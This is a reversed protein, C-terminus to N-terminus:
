PPGAQKKEEIAPEPKPQQKNVKKQPEIREKCYAQYMMKKVDEYDRFTFKKARLYAKSKKDMALKEYHVMDDSSHKRLAKSDSNFAASAESGLSRGKNPDSGIRAKTLKFSWDFVNDYLDLNREAAADKVLQKLYTFDAGEEFSLTTVYDMYLLFQKPCGECLKKNSYSAKIQGVKRYRASPRSSHKGQWPLSGLLMNIMIYGVTILDDRRSLEFGMHSNLSVYRCTGILNKGGVFAIHNGTAPDIITRTLGFDVFIVTNSEEALGM